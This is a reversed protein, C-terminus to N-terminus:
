RVVKRWWDVSTVFRCSHLIKKSVFFLVGLPNGAKLRNWGETEKKALWAEYGVKEFPPPVRWASSNLDAPLTVIAVLIFFMVFLGCDLILSYLTASSDGFISLSTTCALYVVIIVSMGCAGWGLAQALLARWYLFHPRWSFM